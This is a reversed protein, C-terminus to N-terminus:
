QNYSEGPSESQTSGRAEVRQSAVAIARQALNLEAFTFWKEFYGNSRRVKDKAALEQWSIKDMLNWAAAQATNQPIEGNALMRCIEIAEGNETFESIPRLEYKV